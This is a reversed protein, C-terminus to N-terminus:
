GSLQHVRLTLGDVIHQWVKLGVLVPYGGVSCGYECGEGVVRHRLQVYSTDRGKNQADTHRYTHTHTHTHTHTYTGCWHLCYATDNDRIHLRDLLKKEKKM